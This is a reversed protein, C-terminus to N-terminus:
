RAQRKRRGPRRKGATVAEGLNGQAIAESAQDGTERFIAVAEQYATIAEEFRGANQLAFGLNNLVNAEGPPNGAERYIALAERHAAIAEAYRRASRLALGLSDRATGERLRDGTERLIAAADQCTTIAEDFRGAAALALGLNNLTMGEFHRDGTERCIVIADQHATIAEDYRGARQLAAGLSDLAVGESLRDGTERFIAAADQCTTIAEDFRGVATLAIGLNNLANGESQRDGTERCIAAAHEYATIAEAPRGAEALAAGLNAMAAGERRRDGAQRIIVVAEQHAAIAEDFRRVERLALGLNSLAMGEGHRNGVENYIAAADRHAVIAQEFRRVERLALGLNELAMAERHRDGDERCIAAADQCATMAEAFRRAGTLANGLCILAAAENPRDGLRRAAEASSVTIAIKDDFRRRWQLYEALALPLRMAVQDRGAAAALPVAATLSAREGDLWALAEARGAFVAPGPTGALARLHQDAANTKALWHSLLRDLARDRVSAAAPDAPLRQAYLRVLDHMRWRGPVGPAAEILHARVLGSLVQRVEAFRMDALVAATEVSFDPGPAAALLVFVSAFTGDLRGVSLGFAAEVSRMGSGEGYRLAALRRAQDDLRGALEGPMLGEDAALLAGAIELALPLGGCAGALQGAAEPDAAIRDDGPRAARLTADLLEISAAEDMVTIDILRAGLGALTHRSTVLVKHPGTGPLLPRVQAESSANDAVVLVPGAIRALVSRYHGAREEASAAIDSADVGLARLLADLAQGPQVPQEDYGHLDVFLVGGPFWGDRVAAHGAQVALTTKGVGALGAVAAVTVAGSTGAPDLLDALAALEDDRGTFVAPQPPLQALAVPAAAVVRAPDVVALVRDVKGELRLGQLFLRDSNLQSSLPELPGGRAGRGTIERELHRTLQQTVEAASVGLADASSWGPETTIDRDALVALQAAIGAQLAELLTDHEGALQAAPARFVEGIVLAVHDAAAADNPELGAATATVAARCAELLAREREDGLVFTVLKRRGADALVGVLWAGLDDVVVAV